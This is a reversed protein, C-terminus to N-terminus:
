RPSAEKDWDGDLFPLALGQFERAQPEFIPVHSGNPVIWLYSRPIAEYAQVPIAIPFFLDRDGHVILTRATISQLTPETFTMDDYSDKFGHF